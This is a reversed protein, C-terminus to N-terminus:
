NNVIVNMASQLTFSIIYILMSYIGMELLVQRTLDICMPKMIYNDKVGESITIKVEPEVKQVTEYTAKLVRDDYVLWACRSYNHYRSFQGNIKEYLQVLKDENLVHVNNYETLMINVKPEGFREIRWTVLLQMVKLADENADASITGASSQHDFTENRKRQVEYILIGGPEDQDFDFKIDIKMMVDADARKVSYENCTGLNSSYVPPMLKIDPYQNHITMVITKHLTLSVVYVLEFFVLCTKEVKSM